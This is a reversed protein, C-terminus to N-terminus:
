RRKPIPVHGEIVSVPLRREFAQTRRSSMAGDRYAGRGSRLWLTGGMERIARLLESLGYGRGDAELGSVGPRVALRLAQADSKPEYRSLAKRFGHGPDAVSFRLQTGRHTIQAAAFGRQQGSHEGVNEGMASLSMHLLEAAKASQPHVIEHVHDALRVIGSAGRFRALPLLSLGVEHERVEPLDHEAELRDLVRGLRARALYNAVDLNEPRYVSVARNRDAAKQAFAAITTLGAPTVFGARTLDILTSGDSRAPLLASHVDNSGFPGRVM